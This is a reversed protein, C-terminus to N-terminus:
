DGGARQGADSDDGGRDRWRRLRASILRGGTWIDAVIFALLVAAMGGAWDLWAAPGAPAPAGGDPAAPQQEAM